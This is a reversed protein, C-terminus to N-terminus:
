ILYAVVMLIFGIFELLPNLISKKFQSNICGFSLILAGIGYILHNIM